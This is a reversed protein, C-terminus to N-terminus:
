RKPAPPPPPPLLSQQDQDKDKFKGSKPASAKEPANGGPLGPVKLKSGRYVWNAGEYKIQRSDVLAPDGVRSFELRLTKRRVIPDGNGDPADTVSWGNSLGSVYIYFHSSEPNVDDWIAVGNVRTPDANEKSPPIPSSAMTVSNKLKRGELDQIAGQTTPLIQDQHVTDKDQTVLEFDPIFTHSEKTKNVVSYVLYWCVKRGRGPVDITIPRPDKFIFNLVWVKSDPSNIDDKDQVNVAPKIERENPNVAHAFGATGLGLAFVGLLALAHRKRCMIQWGTM